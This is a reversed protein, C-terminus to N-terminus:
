LAWFGDRLSLSVTKNTFLCLIRYRRSLPMLFTACTGLFRRKPDFLLDHSFQVLSVGAGLALHVILMVLARM